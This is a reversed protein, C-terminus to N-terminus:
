GVLRRSEKREQLEKQGKDVIGLIKDETKKLMNMLNDNDRLEVEKKMM